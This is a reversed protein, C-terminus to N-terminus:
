GIIPREKPLEYMRRRRRLVLATALTIPGLRGMFMLAVLILQAATPLDPTIGTSLGVTAFASIVEFLTRDLGFDEMALLIMTSGVVAAMALLAVSIAQRHTTRPLRKGLVNVAAEGRVETLIIFFLVAFTTVKIGGATGAPGAGIFMLIDTGFWSTSTMASTDITNFGATRTMASHTFAALVKGGLDLRGLTAPNAWETALFLVSGLALLVGTMLLVIRTNMSWHLVRGHYRRLQHLVPFGLGGLVVAGIIPLCIWPDAVYRSLSDSWLAFGANNFASVSHFVALWAAQLPHEGYGIWWRLWLVFAVALEILLATRVVGILLGRVGGISGTKTEAAASLRSRMRMRRTVLLGLTTAFTMIGLGGVQILLLIVVQGFGSWHTPTDVVTLGTVCVASAATFLSVMFDAPEDGATAVPLMLALTGLVLASFFGLVIMQAPHLRRFRRGVRTLAM